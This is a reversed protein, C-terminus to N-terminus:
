ATVSTHSSFFAAFLQLKHLRQACNEQTKFETEASRLPIAADLNWAAASTLTIRKHKAASPRLDFFTAPADINGITSQCCFNEITACGTYCNRKTFIQQIYFNKQAFAQKTYFSATHLLKETCFNARHLAERHLFSARHLRKETFFVQKTYFSRQAFVRQTYFSRHTYSKRQTLAQQTYFNRHTYSKRQTLARQTYIRRQTLALETHLCRQSLLHSSNLHTLCLQSPSFLISSNLFLHSSHLLPSM